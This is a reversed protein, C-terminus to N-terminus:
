GLGRSPSHHSALEAPAPGRPRTVCMVQQWLNVSVPMLTISWALLGLVEDTELEILRGDDLLNPM